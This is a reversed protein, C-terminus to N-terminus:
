AASAREVFRLVAFLRVHSAPLAWGSMLFGAHTAQWLTNERPGVIIAHGPGGLLPGTVLVDGPQARRKADGRLRVHPPLARRIRHLGRMAGQRSHLSADPPLTDLPVLPWRMWESLIAVTARVCDGGVGRHGQGAAYPTGEWSALVRALRREARQSAALDDSFEGELRLPSWATSTLKHYHIM